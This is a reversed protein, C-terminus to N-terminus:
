GEIGLNYVSMRDSFDRECKGSVASDIDRGCHVAGVRQVKQHVCSRGRKHQVGIGRFQPPMDMVSVLRVIQTCGSLTGDFVAVVVCYGDAGDFVFLGSTRM